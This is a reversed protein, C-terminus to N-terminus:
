RRVGRSQRRRVPPRGLRQVTEQIRQFRKAEEKTLSATEVRGEKVQLVVRGSRADTVRVWDTGCAMRWASGSYSLSGDAGEESRHELLRRIAQGYGLLEQQKREAQLVELPNEQIKSEQAQEQLKGKDPAYITLERKVRSIGVYFSEKSSPAAVMLARNATKGQSSYTTSVWAHDIYQPQRLDVKAERGEQNVVTATHGDIAQVTLEEGNRREQQRDNKTWKLKDGVAVKIGKPRYASKQFRAPDVFYAKGHRDILTLRDRQVATVGYLEGKNLKLRKYDRLPVVVDGEAFHHAYREQVRTLNRSDLAIADADEGLTGEAQLGARIAATIDQREIHREAIILTEQRAEADLALYDSDFALDRGEIGWGPLM